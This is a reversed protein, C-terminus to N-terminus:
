GGRRVPFYRGPHIFPRSCSLICRYVVSVAIPHYTALCWPKAGPLCVGSGCWGTANSGGYTKSHNPVIYWRKKSQLIGVDVHLALSAARLTQSKAFHQSVYRNKGSVTRRAHLHGGHPVIEWGEPAGFVVPRGCECAGLVSPAVYQQKGSAVHDPQAEAERERVETSIRLSAKKGPPPLTSAHQQDPRPHAPRGTTTDPHVASLLCEETHLLQQLAIRAQQYLPGLARPVETLVTDWHAELLQPILDPVKAAEIM